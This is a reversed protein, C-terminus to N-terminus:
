RDASEADLRVELSMGPQDREAGASTMSCTGIDGASPVAPLGSPVSSAAGDGLGAARRLRDRLAHGLGVDPPMVAVLVQLGLHDAQRLRQYLQRAQARVDGTLSLWTVNEPVTVPRRSALLGVRQGSAQWQELEHTAQAQSALVVRARPAYHSPKVGPCREAGTPGSAVPVGLVRRVARETIAGPRLIRVMTSSLDVITSEIGVSCPGGDLVLDVADGLEEHVHEASTPSVRGYRNASPAAVGGGFAELLALALPQDPVRLAVTDLKGTVADLVGPARRLVLTLPGPWFAEALQWAARPIDQAWEALRSADALHVILPHDAPRGKASFIRAVAEPNRADAGLGYVTETPFAVLGGRRLVTVARQVDPFLELAVNM